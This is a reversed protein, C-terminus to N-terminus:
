GPSVVIRDGGNEALPPQGLVGIPLDAAVAETVPEAAVPSYPRGSKEGRAVPTFAGDVQMFVDRLIVPTIQLQPCNTPVTHARRAPPREGPWGIVRRLGAFM